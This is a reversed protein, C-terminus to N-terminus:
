NVSTIVTTGIPAWNFVWEAESVPLGVCGHSTNVNGFVSAPRWYVGHVADGSHDFYNVWPVNPQVYDPGVMTQETFKAWIHYEGIPTPTSPKGASALFSNVLQGNQFAYLVKTNVDAVLLKSYNAPTWAQFAVTSLPANVKFGGGGFLNKAIQVAQTPISSPNALATGNTGGIAVQSGAPVSITVQNVPAIVYSNALSVLSSSIVSPDTHINDITNSGNPTIELWSKITSPSIAVTQSGLNLTASQATIAQVKSNLQASPVSINLGMSSSSPQNQSFSDLKFNSTLYAQTIPAAVFAIALILLAYCVLTYNNFVELVQNKSKVYQKKSHVIVDTPSSADIVSISTSHPISGISVSPSFTPQASVLKLKPVAVFDNGISSVRPKRVKIDDV